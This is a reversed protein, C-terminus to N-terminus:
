GINIKDGVKLDMQHLLGPQALVGREKLLDHSYRAGGDLKVAGYLPFREQVARVQIMYPVAFADDAARAMTQTEIIETQAVVLPSASLREHVARAEEPWPQNQWTRVDAGFFSRVENTVAKKLNQVLSRLGVISGVGIAICLFFLLLRYWSARMERWAMNLIFTM